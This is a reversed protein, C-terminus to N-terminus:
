PEVTSHKVWLGIGITLTGTNRIHHTVTYGLAQKKFPVMLTGHAQAVGVVAGPIYHSMKIAAYIDPTSHGM